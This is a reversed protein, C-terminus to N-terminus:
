WDYCLVLVTGPFRHSFGRRLSSLSLSFYEFPQTLQWSHKSPGISKKTHASITKVTKLQRKKHLVHLIFNRSEEVTHFWKSITLSKLIASQSELVRFTAGFAATIRFIAGLAPWSHVCYFISWLLSPIRVPIQRLKRFM